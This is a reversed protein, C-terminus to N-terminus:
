AAPPPYNPYRRRCPHISGELLSVYENLNRIGVLMGEDKKRANARRENQRKTVLHSKKTSNTSGWEYEKDVAFTIHGLFVKRERARWMQM